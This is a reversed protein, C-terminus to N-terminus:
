IIFFIIFTVEQAHCFAVDNVSKEIATFEALCM